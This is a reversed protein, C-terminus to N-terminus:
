SSTNVTLEKSLMTHMLRNWLVQRSGTTLQGAAALKEQIQAVTNTGISPACAPPIWSCKSQMVLNPWDRNPVRFGTTGPGLLVHGSMCDIQVSDGVTSDAYPFMTAATQEPWWLGFRLSRMTAVYDVLFAARRQTRVTDWDAAPEGGAARMRLDEELHKRVWGRGKHAKWAKEVDNLLMSAEEMEMAKRVPIAATRYLPERIWISLAIADMIMTSDTTWGPCWELTAEDPITALSASAAGCSVPTNRRPNTDIASKLENWSVSSSM